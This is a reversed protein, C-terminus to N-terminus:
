GSGGRDSPARHGTELTQLRRPTLAECHARLADGLPLGDPLALRLKASSFVPNKPAEASWAICDDLGSAACMAAVVTRWTPADGSVANVAECRGPALAADLLQLYLGPLAAVPALPRRAASVLTLAERAHLAQWVRHLDGPTRVPGGRYGPGVLASPRVIFGAARTGHLAARLYVETAAKMAAYTDAGGFRSAETVRATFPRHVALSSTFLVRTVGRALAAQYLAVSARPGDLRWDHSPDDSWVLANDILADCGDLADYWASEGMAGLCRELGRPPADEPWRTAARVLARVSHGRALLAAVLHRGLYGSAGTVFVRM